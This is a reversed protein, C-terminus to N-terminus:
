LSGELLKPAEGQIFVEKARIPNFDPWIISAMLDVYISVARTKSSGGDFFFNPFNAIFSSKIM